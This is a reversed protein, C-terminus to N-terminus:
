LENKDRKRHIVDLVLEEMEPSLRGIDSKTIANSVTPQSVGLKRAISAQTWGNLKMMSQLERIENEPRRWTPKHAKNKDKSVM